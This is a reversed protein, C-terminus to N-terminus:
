LPGAVNDVAGDVMIVNRFVETVSVAAGAPVHAVVQRVEDCGIGDGLKRDRRKARYDDRWLALRNKMGKVTEILGRRVVLNASSLPPEAAVELSDLHDVILECALRDSICIADGVGDTAPVRLDKGDLVALLATKLESATGIERSVLYPLMDKRATCDPPLWFFAPKGSFYAQVSTTCGRHILGESALLWPTIEGEYVAKVKTLGRLGDFWADHEEGPHPRVVIPPFDPDKDLERLVGLFEKFEALIKRGGARYPEALESKGAAVLRDIQKEICRESVMGFDSSFLFFKGYKERIASVEHDHIVDFERRWLDIRPWGTVYTRTLLEPRVKELVKRHNESLVFYRSVSEHDKTRETFSYEPHKAAVGMEEDLVVLADCHKKIVNIRDRLSASKYFFVGGKERKNELLATIGNKTGLYVRYGRRAACTALLIKSNLERAKIEVPIYITKKSDNM